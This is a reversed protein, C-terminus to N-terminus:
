YGANRAGEAMSSRPEKKAQRSNSQNRAPVAGKRPSEDESSPAAVKRRKNNMAASPQQFDTDYGKNLTKTRPNLQTAGKEFDALKRKRNIELSKNM